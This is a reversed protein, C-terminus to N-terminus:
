QTKKLLTGAAGAAGSAESREVGASPPMDDASRAAADDAGGPVAASRLSAPPAAPAAPGSGQRLVANNVRQMILLELAANRDRCALVALRRQVEEDAYEEDSQKFVTRRLVLVVLACLAVVVLTLPTCDTEGTEPMVICGVKIIRDLM